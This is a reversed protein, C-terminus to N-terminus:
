GVAGLKEDCVIAQELNSAKLERTSDQLEKRLAELEGKIGHNLTEIGQEVAEFRGKFVREQELNDDQHQQTRDVLQKLLTELQGKIDENLAEVRLGVADLKKNHDNAQALHTDKLGRIATQFREDVADVEGKIDRNLANLRDNCTELSLKADEIQQTRDALEERLTGTQKKMEGSIGSSREEITDLKDEYVRAQESKAAQDQELKDQLEKRLAELEGKMRRDFEDLRDNCVREQTLRASELQQTKDQIEKGLATIRRGLDCDLADAPPLLKQVAGPSNSELLQWFYRFIELNFVKNALDSIINTISENAFGWIFKHECRCLESLQDYNLRGMDLGRFLISAVSGFRRLCRMLFEFIKNFHDAQADVNVIRNLLPLSFDMLRDDNICDVFRSHILSCTDSTPLGAEVESHLLPILYKDPEPLNRLFSDLRGRLDKVRWENAIRRMGPFAEPSVNVNGGQIYTLFQSVAEQSIESSIDIRDPRPSLSNFRESRAAFLHSSIQYTQDQFAVALDAPLPPPAFGLM